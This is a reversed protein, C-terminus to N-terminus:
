CKAVSSEEKRFVEREYFTQKKCNNCRRRGQLNAM